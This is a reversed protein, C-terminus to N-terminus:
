RALVLRLGAPWARVNKPTCPEHFLRPRDPKDIRLGCGSVQREACMCQFAVAREVRARGVVSEPLPHAIRDLVKVGPCRAAAPGCCGRGLCRAGKVQCLKPAIHSPFDDQMGGELFLQPGELWAYLVSEDHDGLENGIEPRLKTSWMDVRELTRLVGIHLLQAKFCGVAFPSRGEGKVGFPPRNYQYCAILRAPTLVAKVFPKDGLRVEPKGIM